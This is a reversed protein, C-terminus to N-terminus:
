EDVDGVDAACGLLDPVGEGVRVQGGDVPAVAIDRVPPGAGAPFMDAGVAGADGVHDALYRLALARGPQDGGPGRRLVLPLLVLVGADGEVDPRVLVDDAEGDGVLVELVLTLEGVHGAAPRRDQGVQLREQFGAAWQGLLRPRYGAVSPRLDVVPRDARR